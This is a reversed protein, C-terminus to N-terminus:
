AHIWFTPGHVLKIFDVSDSWRARNLLGERQIGSRSPSHTDFTKDQELRQHEFVARYGVHFHNSAQSVTQVFRSDQGNLVSPFKLRAREVAVGYGYFCGDLDM